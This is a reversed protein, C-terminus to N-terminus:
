KPSVGEVKLLERRFWTGIRDSQDRAQFEMAVVGLDESFWITRKMRLRGRPSGDPSKPFISGEGEVKYVDFTGAPTTVMERGSVRQDEEYDNNFESTRLSYRVRVQAGVRLPFRLHYDGERYTIEEGPRSSIRYGQPEYISPGVRISEGTQLVPARGVPGMPQKTRGDFTQATLFLGPKLLRPLGSAGAIGAQAASTGVVDLAVGRALVSWPPPADGRKVTANLDDIVKGMAGGHRDLAQALADAYPGRDRAAKIIPDIVGQSAAVSTRGLAQTQAIGVKLARNSVGFVGEPAVDLFVVNAKSEAAELRDFLFQLDLGETAIDSPSEVESDPPIAYNKGEHQVFHGTLYVLGIGKNKALEDVLQRISQTMQRRSVEEQYIVDFGAKSLARAVGRADNFTNTLPMKKYSSNGIVLAVGIDPPRAPSQAQGVSGLALFLTGVGLLFKSSRWFHNPAKM